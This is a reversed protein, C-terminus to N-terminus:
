CGYDYSSLSRGTLELPLRPLLSLQNTRGEFTVTVALSDIGQLCCRRSIDAQAPGGLLLAAGMSVSVVTRM